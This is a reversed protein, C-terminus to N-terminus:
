GEWDAREEYNITCEGDKDAMFGDIFGNCKANGEDHYDDGYWVIKEGDLEIYYRYPDTGFDDKSEFQSVVVFQYNKM